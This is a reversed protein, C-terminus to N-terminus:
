DNTAVETITVQIYEYDNQPKVGIACVRINGDDNVTTFAVNKEQFIYLQEPTPQLDIKSNKTIKGVLQDTIDQTYRCDYGEVLEWKDGYLAIKAPTPAIFSDISMYPLASFERVGDGIKLRPVGNDYELVLEGELPLIHNEKAEYEAWDNRGTSDDKWGRRLQQIYRAM